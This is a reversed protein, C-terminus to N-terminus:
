CEFKKRSATVSKLQAHRGVLIDTDTQTIGDQIEPPLTRTQGYFDEEFIGERENNEAHSSFGSDTIFSCPIMLELVKM